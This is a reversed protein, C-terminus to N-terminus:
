PSSALPRDNPGIVFVTHSVVTPVSGLTVLVSGILIPNFTSTVTRAPSPTRRSPTHSLRSRDYSVYTM